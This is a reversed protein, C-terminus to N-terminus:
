LVPAGYRDSIEAVEYVDEREARKVHLELFSRYSRALIAMFSWNGNRAFKLYNGAIQTFKQPIRVATVARNLANPYRNHVDKDWLFQIARNPIWPKGTLFYYNIYANRRIDEAYMSQTRRQGKAAGVVDGPQIFGEALARVTIPYGPYYTMTHMQAKFPKELSLALLLGEEKDREDEFASLIFDYHCDVGYGAQIKSANIISPNTEHRNMIKSRVRYSGSEIGMTLQSLGADALAEMLEETIMEPHTYCFFPLGIERKYAEAFELVWKPYATFVDDWFYIFDLEPYEVLADKLEDIVSEVSRRRLYRGTGNEKNALASNGCFTCRFPCGRATNIYYTQKQLPIPNTDQYVKNHIIYQKNTDGYDIRPLEDLEQVLPRPANEIYGEAQNVYINKIQTTDEGQRLADLLEIFAEDGEGRCLYDVHKNNDLVERYKLTCHTGGWVVPARKLGLDRERERYATLITRCEVYGMSTVNFGLVDPKLAVLQDVVTDIEERTAALVQEFTERFFITHADFGNAAVLSHIYRSAMWHTGHVCVLAVRYDGRPKATTADGEPELERDVRGASVDEM